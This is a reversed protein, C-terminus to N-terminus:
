TPIQTKRSARPSHGNSHWNQGQNQRKSTNFKGLSNGGLTLCVQRGSLWQVVATEQVSVDVAVPLVNDILNDAVVILLSGDEELLLELDACRLLLVFNDLGNNGLCIREHDVPEAVEENLAAELMAGGLLDDLDGLCDTAVRQIQRHIWKAAMNDLLSEVRHWLVVLRDHDVLKEAADGLSDDVSIGTMDPLLEELESPSLTGRLDHLEDVLRETTHPM